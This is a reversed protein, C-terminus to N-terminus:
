KKRTRAYCARRAHRMGTYAIRNSELQQQCCSILRRNFPLLSRDIRKSDYCESSARAGGEASLYALETESSLCRRERKKRLKACAISMSSPRATHESSDTATSDSNSHRSRSAYSIVVMVHTFRPTIIM